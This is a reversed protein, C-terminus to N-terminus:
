KNTSGFGGRSKNTPMFQTNWYIDINYGLMMQGIRQGKEIIYATNSMLNDSYDFPAKLLMKVEDEVGCYDSDIIGPSNPMIWGAKGLSSRLMLKMHTGPQIQLIFGLPVLKIEGPYFEITEAAHVDYGASLETARRPHEVHGYKSLPYFGVERM